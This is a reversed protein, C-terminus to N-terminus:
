KERSFMKKWEALEQMLPKFSVSLSKVNRNRNFWYLRLCRLLDTPGDGVAVAFVGCWSVLAVSLAFWVDDSVTGSSYKTQFHALSCMFAAVSGLLYFAIFLWFWFM